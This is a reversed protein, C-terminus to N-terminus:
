FDEGDDDDEEEDEDFDDDDDDDIIEDDFDEDFEDGFEDDFEDEEDEDEDFDEDMMSQYGVSFKNLILSLLIMRKLVDIKFKRANVAFEFNNYNGMGVAFSPQISSIM